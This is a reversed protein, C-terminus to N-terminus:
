EGQPKYDVISGGAKIHAIMGLAFSQLRAPTKGSEAVIVRADKQQQQKVVLATAAIQPTPYRDEM